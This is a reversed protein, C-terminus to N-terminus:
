VKTNRYRGESYRHHVLPSWINNKARRDGRDRGTMILIRFALIIYVLGMGINYTIPSMYLEYIIWGYANICIMLFLISCTDVILKTKPELNVILAIAAIDFIAATAYYLFGDLYLLHDALIIHLIFSLAVIAAVIVRSQRLRFLVIVILTFIIAAIVAINM